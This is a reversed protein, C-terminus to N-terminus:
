SLSNEIAQLWKLMPETSFSSFKAISRRFQTQRLTLWIENYSSKEPVLKIDDNFVKSFYNAVLLDVNQPKGVIKLEFAFAIKKVIDHNYLIILLSKRSKSWFAYKNKGGNKAYNKLEKEVISAEINQFDTISFIYNFSSIFEKHIEPSEFRKM